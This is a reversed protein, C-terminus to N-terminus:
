ANADPEGDTDSECNHNSIRYPEAVGDYYLKSDILPQVSHGACDIFSRSLASIRSGM